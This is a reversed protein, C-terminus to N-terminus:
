RVRGRPEGTGDDALLRDYLSELKEGFQRQRYSRRILRANAAGIDALRARDTAADSIAAALAASNGPPVVRGHVGDEVISGSNPTTVVYCGCALAEFVSRASGEALSPFVFVDYTSLRPAVDSRPLTGLSRIRQDDFFAPHQARVRHDIAGVLELEWQLGSLRSLAEILVLAGKRQSFEGVFGLRLPGQTPKRDIGGGPVQDLFADDVGFYIVHVRAPDWGQHLFTQRVFDSNTLVHDAQDVDGQVSRWFDDIKLESDRDPFAGGNEVLRFLLAPHAISHHCLTVMGRQKAVKVSGLGYGSRYHYLAAGSARGVWTKARRSYIVHSRNLLFRGLGRERTLGGLALGIQALAESFWSSRIRHPPIASDGRDTLRALKRLRRLLPLKSLKAALGIPYLGTIFCSLRERRAAEAAAIALPFRGFGNSVIVKQPKHANPEPGRSPM